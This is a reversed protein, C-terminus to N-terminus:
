LSKADAVASVPALVFRREDLASMWARLRELTKPYPRALAIGVSRERAIAELIALQRDIAAAGPSDEISLDVRIPPPGLPGSIRIHPTERSGTADVLLLGRAQLGDLVSQLSAVDQGFLTGGVALVGVYGTLSGLVSHLRQANEDASVGARLARPGDDNYPLGAGELPISALIEHGSRRAARAWDDPRSAYTDIALVVAGPLREIAAESPSRSLGIGSVIIVLRAREDRRDHPRAYVDRPLRGDAAITPLRGSSTTQILAPDPAPPLPADPVLAPLRSFAASTLPSVVLGGDVGASAPPAADSLAEAAPPLALVVGRDPPKGDGAAILWLTALIGSFAAFSVIVAAAAAKRASTPAAGRRGDGPRLRCMHERLVGRLRGAM